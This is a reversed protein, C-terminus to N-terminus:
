HYIAYNSFTKIFDYPTKPTQAKVESIFSNFQKWSEKFSITAKLAAAAKIGAVLGGGFSFDEFESEFIDEGIPKDLCVQYGGAVCFKLNASIDNQLEGESHSYTIFDGYIGAGGEGEFSLGVDKTVDDYIIGISLGGGIWYYFGIGYTIEHVDRGNFDIKTIPNEDGYAFLNTNWVPDESLFRGLNPDYYRARMFYLNSEEEMVGYKGVFTFRNDDAETQQMIKGFPDYQYAHTINASADTMAVTSGRFDYHYYHTTNNPKVRAILGLGYVYYDTIQGNADTEALINSAGLIDLVFKRTQGNRTAQRRNDLADYAYTATFNGSVSTLMDHVDWGYTRGPQNTTNGNLNVNYTQGNVQTIRNGEDYDYTTNSAELAISDLPENKHEALHNGLPDMVYKYSCIINGNHLTVMSDLRVAADYFYRTEVGNPYTIKELRDDPYYFYETQQDNWDTVTKMRDGADYTYAVQKNDPYTILTVNSNEDYDYGVTKGDYTIATIRDLDDYNFVITKGDKAATALRNKADYTFTGYGNNALLGKANYTHQLTAGGPKHLATLKGEDDYDYSKTAGDFTMSKLWDFYDYELTTTHGLANVVSTMNENGDYFFRTIHGLPDTIKELYDRHDYDYTTVEDNPNERTKLRGALDYTASTTIGLPGVIDKINGYNDYVYSMQIGAPNTITEVQGFPTYTLQTAGVPSIVETLNVGTYNYDTVYNRPNTYTDLDNLATYTFQHVTNMPLSMQTVNGKNDYTFDTAIGDIVIHTPLTPNQPDDYRAENLDSTPTNYQTLQGQQNHTYGYYYTQAGDHITVTSSTGAAPGTNLAWDVQQQSILGNAGNNHSSTKIKRDEYQNTIFNGNPLTIIKLLHEEGPTPSYNYTTLFNKADRYTLLDDGTPGGYAFVIERNLPDRVSYLKISNPYYFFRLKRGAPETTEKLRIGGGTFSEYTLTVANNNRDRIETLVYPWTDITTNKQEFIYTLQNKKKITFKQTTSNYSIDDYIGKTIPTLTTGNIEYVHINGDPWFVAIKEGFVSGNPHTWGPIRVIYANYSHSWGIGLPQFSVWQDNNNYTCFLEEPLETLFSHYHHSFELPLKRGPIYFSQKAYQEFNGDSLSIQRALNNPTYNGPNFYDANQPTPVTCNNCQALLRYLMIFVEGRTAFDDPRFLSNNASVIGLDACKAIHLFEPHSVPVDTFPAYYADKPLDFAEVLVKCVQGRTLNSGPNYNMFRRNFPSVGDGYELYSLVKGYRAYPQNAQDQMDLFPVPFQDAPTSANLSGFLGAFVVKAVDEKLIFSAVQANGSDPQDIIGNSCLYQVATYIEGAAPAPNTILCAGGATLINVPLPNQFASSSIPIWVMGGSEKYQVQLQYLGAPHTLNATSFSLQHTDQPELQLNQDFDLVAVQNDDDDLLVLQLEGEWDINGNNAVTAQILCPAQNVLPNPTPNIGGALDLVYSNPNNITFINDSLDYEPGVPHRYIKVRYSGPPLDSPINFTSVLGNSPVNLAINEITTNGSPTVLDLTVNGINGTTLWSINQITEGATFIEGGNPYTLTLTNNNQIFFTSNSLDVGNGTGTEYIKVKYVGTQVANDITWSFSGDNMTPDAITFVTTDLANTLEISVNSGVFASTWAIPMVGGVVYNEGGNPTNVTIIPATPDITFSRAPASEATAFGNFSRARVVWRYEHGTQFAYNYTYQSVDGVNLYDLIVADTTLDRVRIEYTAIGSPNNKNWQFTISNTGPTFLHQDDPATLQPPNLSTFISFVDSVDGVVQNASNPLLYEVYVKVNNSNITLGNLSWLHSGDDDTQAAITQAAGNDVKYYIKVKCNSGQLAGSWQVNVLGGSFMDGTNPNSINISANDACPPLIQLPRYHTITGNAGTFTPTCSGATVFDGSTSGLPIALVYVGYAGAALSVPDIGTDLNVTLGPGIAQFPSSLEQFISTNGNKVILTKIYGSWSLGGANSVSFTVNINEHQRVSAPSNICSSFRVLAPNPTATVTVKGAWFRDGNSSNVTGYFDQTGSTFGSPIPITISIYSVGSSFSQSGLVAGCVGGNTQDKIYAVGSQAFTGTCKKIRFVFNTSTVQYLSMQITSGLFNQGVCSGFVNTTPCANYTGVTPSATYTAQARAGELLFFGLIVTYLFKM